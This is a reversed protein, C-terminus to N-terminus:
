SIGLTAGHCYLRDRFSKASHSASRETGKRITLLLAELRDKYWVTSCDFQRAMQLKEEEYKGHIQHVVISKFDKLHPLGGKLPRYIRRGM